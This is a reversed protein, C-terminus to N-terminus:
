LVSEAEVIELFGNSLLLKFDVPETARIEHSIWTEDYPIKNDMQSALLWILMLHCRAADPLGTFNYDRLCQTHLKIWSPKWNDRRKHYHQYKELSRVRLYRDAQM